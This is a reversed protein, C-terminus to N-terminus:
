GSRTSAISIAQLAASLSFPLRFLAHLIGANRFDIWINTDSIYVLNM